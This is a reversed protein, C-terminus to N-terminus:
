SQSFGFVPFLIRLSLLMRKSQQYINLSLMMNFSMPRIKEEFIYLLIMALKLQFIDRHTLPSRLLAPMSLSPTRLNTIFLSPFFSNIVRLFLIIARLGGKKPHFGQLNAAGSLMTSSLFVLKIRQVLFIPIVLRCASSHTTIVRLSPRISLHISLFYTTDGRLTTNSVNMFSPAPEQAFNNENFVASSDLEMDFEPHFEPTQSVSGNSFMFYGEPNCATLNGTINFSEQICIQIPNNAVLTLSIHGPPRPIYKNGSFLEATFVGGEPLGTTTSQFAQTAVPYYFPDDFWDASHVLFFCSFLFFLITLFRNM